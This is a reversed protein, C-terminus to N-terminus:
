EEATVTVKLEASIDRHLKVTVRHEGTEKIPEGLAIRRREIEFGQAALREHIQLVTVSGFLKGEEGVRAPIELTLAEIRAKKAELGVMQQAVKESVVRRHHELERVRGETAFIAKGQPILYNRAYGPRVHVLDGAEGLNSVAEQLILQVQAM